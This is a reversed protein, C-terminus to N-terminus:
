KRYKKILESALEAQTKKVQGTEENITPGHMDEMVTTIYRSLFKKLLDSNKPDKMWSNDGDLKEGTDPNQYYASDNLGQDWMEAFSKTQNDGAMDTFAMGIANEPGGETLNNYVRTYTWDGDFDKGSDTDQKTKEALKWVFAKSGMPETILTAGKMNDLAIKTVKGSGGAYGMLMKGKEDFVVADSQGAYVVTNNYLHSAQTGKSLSGMANKMGLTGQNLSNSQSKATVLSNVLGELERSLEDYEESAKDVSDLRETLYDHKKRIGRVFESLPPFIHEQIYDPSSLNEDQTSDLFKLGESLKNSAEDNAEFGSDNKNKAM